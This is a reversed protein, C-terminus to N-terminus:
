YLPVGRRSLVWKQYVWVAGGAWDDSPHIQWFMMCVCTSKFNPEGILWNILWESYLNCCSFNKLYLLTPNMSRSIEGRSSGSCPSAFHVNYSRQVFANSLVTQSTNFLWDDCSHTIKHCMRLNIKLNMTFDVRLRVERSRSRSWLKSDCYDQCCAFFVRNRKWERCLNWKGQWRNHSQPRIRFNFFVAM